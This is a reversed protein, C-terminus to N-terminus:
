RRASSKVSHQLLMRELGGHRERYMRRERLRAYCVVALSAAIGWAGVFLGIFTLISSMQDMSEM